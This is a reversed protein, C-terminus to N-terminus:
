NCYFLVNFILIGKFKNTLQIDDYELESCLNKLKLFKFKECKKEFVQDQKYLRTAIFINKNLNSNNILSNSKNNSTSTSEIIELKYENVSCKFFSTFLTKSLLSEVCSLVTNKNTSGFEYNETDISNKNILKNSIDIVTDNFLNSIETDFFEKENTKRINEKVILNEIEFVKSKLESLLNINKSNRIISYFSTEDIM